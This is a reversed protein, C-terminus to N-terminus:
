EPSVYETVELDFGSIANYKIPAGMLRIKGVGLDRLIQSGLGVTMYTSTSDGGAQATDAKGLAIDVSHLLDDDSESRALLVVVGQGAENVQQLCKSINWSPRGPAEASLMDRVAAQVHVRVLTPTDATIEGLHLAMHVHGATQDRYVTLNFTGHATDISGERVKRITRESVVRFHILDAISGIKLENSKAFEALEAGNALQGEPTLVDAMMAAPQLGALGAYDSAAETHGARTLVGGPVVTLPFIHGPQVIDAAVTTPAVAVQITRARDAASIGTTIGERAEISVTFNSKEGGPDDAMPPLGLLHCREETMALCVLGKAKRAMFNVHDAEVFEAAMMVVGENVDKEAEDDLLVVMRGQRVDSIIDEVTDLKM